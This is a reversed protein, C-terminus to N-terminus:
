AVSPEDLWNFVSGCCTGFLKNDPVVSYRWFGPEVDDTCLSGPSYHRETDM